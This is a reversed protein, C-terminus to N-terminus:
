NPAATRRSLSPLHSKLCVYHAFLVFLDHISRIQEATVSYLEFVPFSNRVTPVNFLLYFGIFVFQTSPIDIFSNYEYNNYCLRM